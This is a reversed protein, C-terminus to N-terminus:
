LQKLFGEYRTGKLRDAPLSETRAMFAVIQAVVEDVSARFQEQFASQYSQGMGVAEFIRGIRPLVDPIGKGHHQVRLYEMFFIGMSEMKDENKKDGSGYSDDTLIIRAEDATMKAMQRAKRVDYDHNAVRLHDRFALGMMNGHGEIFYRPVLHQEAFKGLARKAQIHALEHALTGNAFPDDLVSASVVFLDRGKAFGLVGAHEAKMRAASLLRLTLPSEMESPNAWHMQNAVFNWAAMTQKTVARCQDAGVSLADPSVVQLFGARCLPQDGASAGAAMILVLVALSSLIRKMQSWSPGIWLNSLFNRKKNLVIERRM